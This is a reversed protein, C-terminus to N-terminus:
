CFFFSLILVIAPSVTIEKNIEQLQQKAFFNIMNVIYNNSKICIKQEETFWTKM